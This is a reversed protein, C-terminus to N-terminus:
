NFPHYMSQKSRFQLPVFESQIKHKDYTFHATLDDKRVRKRFTSEQGWVSVTRLIIYHPEKVELVSTYLEELEAVTLNDVEGRIVDFNDPILM